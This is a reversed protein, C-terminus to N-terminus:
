NQSKSRPWLDGFLTCKYDEHSNISVCRKLINLVITKSVVALTLTKVLNWVIDIIELPFLFLGILSTYM